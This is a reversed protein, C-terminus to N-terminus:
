DFAAWLEYNHRASPIGFIGLFSPKETFVECRGNTSHFCWIDTCNAAGGDLYTPVFTTPTVFVFAPRFM